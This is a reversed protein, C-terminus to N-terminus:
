SFSLALRFKNLCRACVHVNRTSLYMNTNYMTIDKCAVVCQFRVCRNPPEKEQDAYLVRYLITHGQKLKLSMLTDGLSEELGSYYMKAKIFGIYAIDIDFAMNQVSIYSDIAYGGEVLLGKIVITPKLGRTPTKLKGIYNMDSDYFTLDICRDFYYGMQKAIQFDM